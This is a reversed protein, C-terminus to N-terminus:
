SLPGLVLEFILFMPLRSADELNPNRALADKTPRPEYLRQILFGAEAIIESWETITCRWYPTDWHYGLRSMSWHCVAQGSDFYHNIKLDRQKGKEETEWERYPTDTCPHPVSFVLRGSEKLVKRSASIAGPPDSMDHLSMCGTVLDFSEAQWRQSVDSASMMSYEIGLPHKREHDRAYALQEESIDIGTVRAGNIALQRTFYGQGCGTDLIDLGRVSECVELLAPGHVSHRYYDKGSEVFDDWADAGENWAKRADDNNFSPDHNM